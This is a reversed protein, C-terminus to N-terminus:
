SVRQIYNGYVYRHLERDILLWNNPEKRWVEVLQDKVLYDIIKGQTSPLDRVNLKSATVKGIWPYEPPPPPPTQGGWNEAIWQHMEPVNGIEWRDWDVSASGNQEGPFGPKKDATQHLVIRDRRVKNPLAPPGPHEIWRTLLYQALWWFHDNLMDISWYPSLWLDILQKRSYIGPRIGDRSKVLESVKWTHDAIAAPTMGRQLELDIWRPIIDIVPHIRYWNDVQAVVPQDPYTVHYSTRYMDNHSANTYNANFFPDTYAWSIGSRFAAGLVGRARAIALNVLLQYRSYDGWLPRNTGTPDEFTALTAYAARNIASNLTRLISM